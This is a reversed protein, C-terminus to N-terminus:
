SGGSKKRKHNTQHSLILYSLTQSSLTVLSIHKALLSLSFLFVFHTLNLAKENREKYSFFSLSVVKQKLNDMIGM